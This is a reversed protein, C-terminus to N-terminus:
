RQSDLMALQKQWFEVANEFTDRENPDVEVCRSIFDKWCQPIDNSKLSWFHRKSVCEDRNTLFLEEDIQEFIVWLTRGLSYVEAAELAPQCERQWIPFVNRHSWASCDESVPGTYKHYLLKTDREKPDSRQDSKVEEVDWAGTAEPALFFPSAGYQEWDILTTDDQEDLLINSPKLDMHFMQSSNVTAMASSIQCAWKAKLALSLREGEISAKEIVEQISQREQYPYLFGCVFKQQKVSTKTGVLVPEVIVLMSPPRVINPHYPLSFILNLEHYMATREFRFSQGMELYLLFSLGKYVYRQNIPANRFRAITTCGRGGLVHSFLLSNQPVLDIETIRPDQFLSAQVADVPLLCKLYEQFTSEHTISWIVEGHTDQRIQVIVDPLHISPHSACDQWIQSISFQIVERMSERDPFTDSDDQVQIEHFCSVIRSNISTPFDVDHCFRFVLWLEESFCAAFVAKESENGSVLAM